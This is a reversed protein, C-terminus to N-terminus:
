KRFHDMRERADDAAHQNFKRLAQKSMRDPQDIMKLTNHIERPTQGAQELMDYASGTDGRRVAERVDPLVDHLKAQQERNQYRLEAVADGGAEKSVTLGTATGMLKVKDMRDADGQVVHKLAMMDDVPLQSKVWYAAFKAVQKLAPDDPNIIRRGQRDENGAFLDAFPKVFTSMKNHLLTLGSSLPSGYEKLEEGVKGVPLRLYYANGQEDEDLHVRNEKGHPNNSTESLSGIAELPHSLMTLPDAKFKVGLKGLRDAFGDKIDQWSQGQLASQVLSNVTAMAAIELTLVTLAKQRAIKQAQSLTKGAASEAEAENKGMARQVEIARMKIQAQVEKPLGVIVDRYAGINTLTFSKSFLGLNAVVHVGSSVSERPIMGAYRNAFHTAEYTATHQDLGKDLLSQRMMVAMGAQMDAIRDWLLTEHWIHGAADVGARLKDGVSKGALDGIKGLGQALLSRGPEIGNAIAPLDPNMGRGSVPVLGHEILDNMMAHDARVSHGVFYPRAGLTAANLLNNKWGMTTAMTPYAKGWIVLNHTLPSIMILSTIGGKLRMAGQYLKNPETSFVAKLPGAFDKRVYLPSSTMVPKGNEDELARRQLVEGDRIRYSALQEGDKYVGDKRVELGKAAIKGMDAPLWDIKPQWRKLAPHDILVFNKDGNDSFLEEGLVQGHAKIQNVLTRGSIAKELEAMARPMVRINKVYGADDGFKSKLAAESEALTEYKRGKMSSASTRLNRADKSPEGPSGGRLNEVTGDEHIRAAVRPTWYAVGDGEVMGAARAKDWLAQGYKNLLEVTERQDAPLSNLGKDPATKGERRLDNEEDAAIWMKELQDKTYNKELVKDARQWQAEAKRNRSAFDKAWAMAQMSGDAIPMVLQRVSSAASRLMEKPVGILKSMRSQDDESVEQAGADYPVKEEEVARPDDAHLIPRGNEDTKGDFTRWFEQQKMFDGGGIMRGSADRIPHRVGDVEITRRDDAGRSINRRDDGRETPETVRQSKAKVNGIFDGPHYFGDSRLSRGDANVVDTVIGHGLMKLLTGSKIDAGNPLVMFRNGGSGSERTMRRVLAKIRMFDDGSKASELMGMPVDVLLQTDGRATTMILTAHGDPVQLAKAARAVSEPSTIRVGLMAHQMEPMGTFDRGNLHPAKITEEGWNHIVSYENHDIVVHGQFGPVHQDVFRTMKIDAPSPESHGSPHNHLLYYGDAGFRAKDSAIHQLMDKPLSVSAALRSTYGAEGVIKDAHDTYLVRFTEFRPDRYVQALAALDAPTKAEQGVLQNPKGEIFNALLRSGLVSVKEGGPHDRRNIRDIGLRRALDSIAARATQKQADLTGPRTAIDDFLDQGGFLDRTYPDDKRETVAGDASEDARGAEAPRGDAPAAPNTETERGGAAADHKSQIGFIADLEEDTIDHNSSKGGDLPIDADRAMDAAIQAEHDSFTAAHAGAVEDYVQDATKGATDIGLNQAEAMLEVDAHPANPEAQAAPQIVEKRHVAREIMDAMQRTGGNDTPDSMHQDSLFGAEHARQALEDMRAGSKRYLAGYGPIMAPRARDGGTDSRDDIHVGHEGLFSMFPNEAHMRARTRDGATKDVQGGRAVYQESVTSLIHAEGARAQDLHESVVRELAETIPIGETDAYHRAEERMDHVPLKDSLQHLFLCRDFSM